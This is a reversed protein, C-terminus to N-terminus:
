MEGEVQRRMSKVSSGNAELYAGLQEPTQKVNAAVRQITRDIDSQKVEIKDAKAAQIQADPPGSAQDIAAQAARVLAQDTSLNSELSQTDAATTGSLNQAAAQASAIQAACLILWPILTIRKM